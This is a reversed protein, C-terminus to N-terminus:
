IKNRLELKGTVPKSAKFDSRGTFSDILVQSLESPDGPDFVMQM